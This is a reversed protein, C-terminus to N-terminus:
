VARLEIWPLGVIVAPLRIAAGLGTDPLLRRRRGIPNRRALLPSPLGSSRRAATGGRADTPYASARCKAATPPGATRLDRAPATTTMAGTTPATRPRACSPMM